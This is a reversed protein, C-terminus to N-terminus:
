NNAEKKKECIPCLGDKNVSYCYCGCKKCKKTCDRIEPIDKM